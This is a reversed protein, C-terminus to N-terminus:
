AQSEIEFEGSRLVLSKADHLIIPHEPKPKKGLMTGGNDVSSRRDHSLSSSLRLNLNLWVLTSLRTFHM